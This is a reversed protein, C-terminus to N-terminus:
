HGYHIQIDGVAQLKKLIEADATLNAARVEGTYGDIWSTVMYKRDDEPIKSARELMCLDNWIGVNSVSITIFVFDFVSIFGMAEFNPEKKLSEGSYKM